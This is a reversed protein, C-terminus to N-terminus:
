MKEYETKQDEKDLKLQDILKGFKTIKQIMQQKDKEAIEKEKQM